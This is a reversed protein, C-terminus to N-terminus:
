PTISINKIVELHDFLNSLSLNFNTAYLTWLDGLGCILVHDLVKKIKRYELTARSTNLMTFTENRMIQNYKFFFNQLKFNQVLVLMLQIPWSIWFSQLSEVHFLSNELVNSVWSLLFIGQVGLLNYRAILFIFFIKPFGKPKFLQFPCPVEM